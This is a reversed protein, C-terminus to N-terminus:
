SPRLLTRHPDIVDRILHIQESTPSPTVEVVDAIVPEFSMRTLVDDLEVGPHLSRLRMTCSTPDFDFLAKDTVVLQPGGPPLGLDARTADNRRHGVSTVFDVQDVFVRRDLDIMVVPYPVFALHEPQALCGVLRVSPARYDGLATINLNGYRDIQAASDFCVDFARRTLMDCKLGTDSVSAAARWRTLTDQRIDTPAVSLDPELLNGWYVSAAPAHTLQALRTAALPIGVALTFARGTSGVGVFALDGDKIKSAVACVALEDTSFAQSAHTM